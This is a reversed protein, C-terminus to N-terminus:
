NGKWAGIDDIGKDIGFDYLDVAIFGEGSQKYNANGFFLSLQGYINPNIQNPDDGGGYM